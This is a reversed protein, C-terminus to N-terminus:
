KKLTRIFKVVGEIQAKSLQSAYAPMPPKGKSIIAALEADSQKQVEASGLDKMGFHKGMPTNGKGDAGHCMACKGKFTDAGNEAFSWTASLMSFALVPLLIRVAKKM